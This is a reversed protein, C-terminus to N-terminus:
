LLTPDLIWGYTTQGDTRLFNKQNSWFKNRLYMDILSVRSYATHGLGLNLEHDCLDWFIATCRSDSLSQTLPTIPSTTIFLETYKLSESTIFNSTQLCCNKPTTYSITVVSNPNAYSV